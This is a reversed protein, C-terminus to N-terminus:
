IAGLEPPPRQRSGGRRAAKPDVREGEEHEALRHPTTRHLRVIDPRDGHNELQPLGGPPHADADDPRAGRRPPSTHHSSSPRPDCPAEHRALRDRASAPTPHSCLILDLSMEARRKSGESGGSRWGCLKHLFRDTPPRRCGRMGNRERRSWRSLAQLKSTILLYQFM